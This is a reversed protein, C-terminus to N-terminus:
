DCAISAVTPRYPDVGELAWAWVVRLAKIDCASIVPTLGPFGVDPIWGYGMVDITDLLPEAHSLGLAHGLEHLAIDGLAAPSTPEGVVRGPPGITSLSVNSCHGAQCRAKCCFALGGEHPVFKIVIDARHAGPTDTVDTLTILGGFEQQLVSSWTTIADRIEPLYAPDAGGSAQVAVTLDTHDWWYAQPATVVGALIAISEADSEPAASAAPATVTLAGTILIWCVLTSRLRM